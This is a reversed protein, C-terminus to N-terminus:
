VRRKRGRGNGGRSLSLVEWTGPLVLGKEGLGLGCPRREEKEREEGGAEVAGGGRCPAVAWKGGGVARSSALSVYGLNSDRPVAIVHWAPDRAPDWTVYPALALRPSFGAGM